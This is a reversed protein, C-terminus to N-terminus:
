RYLLWFFICIFVFTAPVGIWYAVTVRQLLAIEETTLQDTGVERKLKTIYGMCGGAGAISTWDPKYESTVINRALLKRYLARYAQQHLIFGAFGIILLLGLLPYIM